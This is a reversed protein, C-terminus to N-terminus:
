RRRAVLRDYEEQAAPSLDSRDGNWDLAYAAEQAPTMKAMIDRRRVDDGPQLNGGPERRM